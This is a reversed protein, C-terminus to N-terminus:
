LGPRGARPPPRRDVRHATAPDRRSLAPRRHRTRPRATGRIDVAAVRGARRHGSTGVTSTTNARGGCIWEQPRVQPAAATPRSSHATSSSTSTAPLRRALLASQLSPARAALAAIGAQGQLIKSVQTRVWTEAAPDGAPHFCWAAKWVYEIVHILDIVITVTVKHRRAEARIRDIQHTNGDVLAVWTRRHQPDRRTAEAFGEAIVTAADHTISATLWKGAAVPHPRRDRPETPREPLVDTVTRSVPAADYVAAVEAIRKRCRKEGASLRTSLKRSAAQSATAPRLARPDMVVGKGDFTMVLTDTDPAPAPRRLTYFDHADV